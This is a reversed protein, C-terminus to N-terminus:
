LPLCVRVSAEHFPVKFSWLAKREKSLRHIESISSHNYFATPAPSCFPPAPTRADAGQARGRRPGEGAGAGRDRRGERGSGRGEGSEGDRGRKERGVGKQGGRQQAPDLPPTFSCLPHSCPLPALSELGGASPHCPARGSEGIGRQLGTSGAAPARSGSGDAVAM